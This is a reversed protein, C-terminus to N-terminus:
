KLFGSSIQEGSDVIAYEARPFGATLMRVMALADNGALVLVMHSRDLPNVAAYVLGETESAYAAGRIRFMAGEADLGIKDKWAALASNTEPRGVFIVGHTGLEAETVEFDKRIPVAGEYSDLFQKQLQQAAYRNTGADMLTGYVLLATPLRRRIDSALYTAGGPDAPMRFEVGAARLFSQATVTQTTHAAFFDKMLTFFRDDGLERRLADLFLAGKATELRFHQLPDPAASSASRFDAWRASIARRVDHSQLDRYYAASGSAFWIDADSAPLVWGKWLRDASFSEPAGSGVPTVNGGAASPAEARAAIMRYGSPYIGDNKAYAEREARSPAWERQNPKGFAAWVMMHSAMDATVVKGDMTTPSVLPATRFALFAFQEDIKGRYDRYLDQWKLDRPGPAYPVYEPAGKPDSQEELRVTLDKANNDGWYFGETGGFWDNKSSRYLRTKYTGLELMAIENTRADGMLWENTYLGNNKTELYEVMKDISDGYQIAKRARYAVPTGQRNFPGQDITTETLVMGADNQYWDTGSEIGGPYSQMLVRHGTAPKLDLLVNTQEALTLPWWTVHGMLMRGDRTAKGTAAFASCHDAPGSMLGRKTTFYGPPQLHLGELGNPTVKLADSLAGLEVTTNVTVMDTLDLRRGEWRAGADSAGDAIGQMELLIEQDFGHLFLAGATARALDWSQSKGSHGLEAACRAMYQVIEKSMLRGHQYGREYPQGEIHLYIWGGTPYRYAPGYTAVAAPLPWADKASVEDISVGAFWAKGTFAGGTGAILLIEDQAQTATFELHVRTWDRTGGVSESHVDFPMSAMSLAAGIAIPTRDLDRVTLQETRIWGTLEYRKGIALTVPASRVCADQSTGAEVRLSKRGQYTVSSDVASAGRLASWSGASDDFSSQYLPTAAPLGAALCIFLALRRM